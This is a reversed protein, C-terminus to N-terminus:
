AALRERMAGICVVGHAVLAEVRGGLHAAIHGPDGSGVRAATETQQHDSVSEDVHTAM